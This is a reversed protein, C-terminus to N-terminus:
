ERILRKAEDYDVLNGYLPGSLDAAISHLFDHAMDLTRRNRIYRRVFRWQAQYAELEQSFRFQPDSYYRKWWAEPDTQQKTHVTEHVIGDPTLPKKCYCTDGYVFNTGAEFDASPLHKRIEAYNPPPCHLQNM